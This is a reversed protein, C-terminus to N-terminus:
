QGLVVIYHYKHPESLNSIYKMAEDCSKMMNEKRSLSDSYSYFWNEYTYQDEENLVDGGLVMMHENTMIHQLLTLVEQYSLVYEHTLPHQYGIGLTVFVQDM